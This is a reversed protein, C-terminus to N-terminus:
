HEFDRRRRRCCREQRCIAIANRAVNIAFEIPRNDGVVEGCMSTNQRNTPPVSLLLTGAEQRESEGKKWWVRQRRAAM